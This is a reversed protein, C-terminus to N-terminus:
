TKFVSAEGMRGTRQPALALIFLQSAPAILNGNLFSFEIKHSRGPNPACGTSKKM